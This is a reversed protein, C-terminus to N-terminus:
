RVEGARSFRSLRDPQGFPVDVRKPKVAGAEQSLKQSLEELAFGEARVIHARDTLILWPQAKLGWNFKTKEEDTQIM